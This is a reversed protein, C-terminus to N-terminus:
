SRDGANAPKAALVCTVPIRPRDDNFSRVDEFRLENMAARLRAEWQRTTEATAGRSRPQIALALLGGPRLVRAAERAGLALDPWFQVSNVSFVRDFSASEFPMSAVDGLAVTARGEAIAQAARGRAQRVMESSVDLGTVHSVRKSLAVLDVGPGCGIELVRHVPRVDLLGRVWAGRDRNNIAMLHGVLRGLLGRPHAFQSRWGQGSTKM